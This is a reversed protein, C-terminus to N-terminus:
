MDVKGTKTGNGGEIESEERGARGKLRARIRDRVCVSVRACECNKKKEGRRGRRRRGGPRM